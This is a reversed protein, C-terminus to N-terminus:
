AHADRVEQLAAVYRRFDFANVISRMRGVFEGCEPADSEIESLRELIRTVHGIEGLQILEDIDCGAPLKATMQPATPPADPAPADNTYLWEIDVLAHIKKLLQRLDIPKMLTDDYLREAELMHHPDIANASLILIAPRKGQHRRLQQAVEWGDMGPMAIDLLILNPNTQGVIQLCERGSAASVVVFGIPELLDRILERQVENDDVVLVTQRPGGYGRVRYEMTSAIRPRTVESLLLKARFTSRKGVESEVSIDDGMIKTL